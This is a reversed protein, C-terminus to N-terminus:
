VHRIQVSCQGDDISTVEAVYIAGGNICNLLRVQDRSIINGAIRGEQTTVQIPGQDSLASVNLIYSRVLTAIVEAQPSAINANIVLNECLEGEAPRNISPGDDDGGGGGSM